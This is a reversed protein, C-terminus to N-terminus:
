GTDGVRCLGLSRSLRKRERETLGGWIGFDEGNRLAAALCADRVDCRRCIAKAPASSQNGHDPFFLEQNEIGRCRAREEWQAAVEPHVYVAKSM